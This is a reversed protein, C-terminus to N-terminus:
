IWFDFIWMKWKSNQSKFTSNHSKFKSNRNSSNSSNSTNLSNSNERGPKRSVKALWTGLELIWFTIKSNQIKFKSNQIEFKAHSNFKCRRQLNLETALAYFSCFVWLVVGRPACRANCRADHLPAPGLEGKFRGPSSGSVRRNWAARQGPLARPQM